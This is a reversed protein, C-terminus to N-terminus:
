TTATTLPDNLTVGDPVTRYLKFVLLPRSGYGTGGYATTIGSGWDPYSIGNDTTPSQYYRSSYCTLTCSGPLLSPVANASSYGTNAGFMAAVPKCSQYYNWIPDSPIGYKPYNAIDKVFDASNIGPVATFAPVVQIVKGGFTSDGSGLSFLINSKGAVSTYTLTIPSQVGPYQDFQDPWYNAVSLMDGQSVKFYPQNTVAAGWGAPTFGDASIGGAGVATIVQMAVFGPPVSWATAFSDAAFYVPDNDVNAVTTAIRPLTADPTELPDYVDAAFPVSVTFDASIAGDAGNYIPFVNGNAATYSGAIAGSVASLTDGGLLAELRTQTWMGSPDYIEIAPYTLSFDLGDWYHKSPCIVVQGGSGGLRPQRIGPSITSYGYISTGTVDGSGVGGDLVLIPFTKDLTPDYLSITTSGGSPQAISNIGNYKGGAGISFIIKQGQRVRVWVSTAIAGTGVRGLISAGSGAMAFQIFFGSMGSPVDISYEGAGRSLSIAPVSLATNLSPNSQTGALYNTASTVNDLSTDQSSAFRLAVGGTYKSMPGATSANEGVDMTLGNLAEAWIGNTGGGVTLINYPQDPYPAYITNYGTSDAGGVGGLLHIVMQGNIKVILPGGGPQNASLDSTQAGIVGVQVEVFAKPPISVCIPYPISAGLGGAQNNSAAGPAANASVIYLYKEWGATYYTQKVMQKTYNTVSASWTQNEAAVPVSTLSITSLDFIPADIQLLDDETVLKASLYGSYGNENTGGVGGEISTTGRWSKVVGNPSTSGASCVPTSLGAPMVIPVGTDSGGRLRYDFPNIGTVPDVAGVGGELVIVDHRVAAEGAVDNQTWITMTTNDGSLQAQSSLNNTLGGGGVMGGICSGVPVRIVIGPSNVGSASLYAGATGSSTSNGAGAGAKMNAIWIGVHKEQTVLNYGVPGFGSFDIPWTYGPDYAPALPRDTLPDSQEMMLYTSTPIASTVVMQIASAGANAGVNVFDGGSGIGGVTGDIPSTNTNSLGDYFTTSDPTPRLLWRGGAGSMYYYTRDDIANQNTPSIQVTGNVLETAAGTGGNLRFLEVGNISFILPLGNPQSVADDTPNTTQYTGVNEVKIVDGPNVFYGLNNCYSGTGGAVYKSGAGGQAVAATILLSTVGDPVTYEGNDDLTVAITTVINRAAASVVFGDWLHIGPVYMYQSPYRMFIPIDTADLFGTRGVWVLTPDTEYRVLYEDYRCAEVQAVTLDQNLRLAFM